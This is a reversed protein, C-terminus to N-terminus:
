ELIISDAHISVKQLLLLTNNHLPRLTHAKLLTKSGIICRDGVQVFPRDIIKATLSWEIGSGIEAGWLRLWASYFGPLCKLFMEFLPVKNYIMQLETAVQWGNILGDEDHLLSKGMPAAVMLRSLRWVLPALLYACFLCAFFSTTNPNLFFKLGFAAILMILMVPILSLFFSNIKHTNM